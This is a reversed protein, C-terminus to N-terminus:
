GMVEILCIGIEVLGENLADLDDFGCTSFHIEGDEANAIEVTWGTFPSVEGHSDHIMAQLDAPDLGCEDMASEIEEFTAPQPEGFANRKM